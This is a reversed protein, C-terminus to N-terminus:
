GRRGNIPSMTRIQMRNPDHPVKKGEIPRPELHNNFMDYLMYSEQPTIEKMHERLWQASGAGFNHEIDAGRKELLGSLGEKIFNAISPQEELARLVEPPTDTAFARLAKQGPKALTFQKVGLKPNFTPLANDQGKPM